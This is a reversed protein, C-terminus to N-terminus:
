INLKKKAFDFVGIGADLIQQLQQGTMSQWYGPNKGPYRAESYDAASGTIRAYMPRLFSDYEKQSIKGNAVLHRAVVDLDHGDHTPLNHGVALAKLSLEAGTWNLHGIIQPAAGMDFAKNAGDLYDSAYRLYRKREEELGAM